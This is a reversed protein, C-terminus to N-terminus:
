SYQEITLFEVLIGADDSVAQKFDTEDTIPISTMGTIVGNVFSLAGCECIVNDSVVGTRIDKTTWIYGCESCLARDVYSYIM